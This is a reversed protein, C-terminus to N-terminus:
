SNTKIRRVKVIKELFDTPVLQVNTIEKSTTRAIVTAMMKAVLKTKKM